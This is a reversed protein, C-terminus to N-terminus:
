REHSVVAKNVQWETHRAQQAASLNCSAAQMVSCRVRSATATCVNRLAQIRENRRHVGSRKKNWFLEDIDSRSMLASVCAERLAMCGGCLENPWCWWLCGPFLLCRRAVGATCRVDRSHAWAKAAIVGNKGWGTPPKGGTPPTRVQTGKTPQSM